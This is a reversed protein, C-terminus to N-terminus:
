HHCVHLNISLVIYQLLHMAIKVASKRQNKRPTVCGKLQLGLCQLQDCNQTFCMNILLLYKLMCHMDYSPLMLNQAFMKIDDFITNVFQDIHGLM